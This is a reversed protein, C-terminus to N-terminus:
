KIKNTNSKSMKLYILLGRVSFFLCVAGMIYYWPNETISFFNPSIRVWMNFWPNFSVLAVCILVIHLWINNGKINGRKELTLGPVITIIVQTFIWFKWMTSDKLEIRLLNLAVYFCIIQVIIDTIHSEFSTGEKWNINKEYTLARSLCFIEMLVWIMEGISLLIFLPYHNYNIWLDLFVWIGMFDAACYFTHMWLPYPGVKDRETLYIPIIYVLLGFIVTFLITIYTIIYGESELSLNDIFNQPSVDGTPYGSILKEIINM